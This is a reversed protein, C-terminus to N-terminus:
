AKAAAAGHQNLCNYDGANARISVREHSVVRDTMEPILDRVFEELEEKSVGIEFESEKLERRAKYPILFGGKMIRAKVIAIAIQGRREATLPM